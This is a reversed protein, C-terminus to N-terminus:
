NGSVSLKNGTRFVKEHSKTWLPLKGGCHWMVLAVACLPLNDGWGVHVCAWGGALVFVCVCMYKHNMVM